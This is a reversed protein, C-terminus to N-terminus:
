FLVQIFLIFVEFSHSLIPIFSIYTQLRTKRRAIEVVEEEVTQIDSASRRRLVCLSLFLISTRSNLSCDRQHPSVPLLAASLFSILTFWNLNKWEISNRIHAQGFLASTCYLINQAVSECTRGWFAYSSHPNEPWKLTSNKSYEM